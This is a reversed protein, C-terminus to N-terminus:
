IYVRDLEKIIIQNNTREKLREVLKENNSYFKIIVEEQYDFIIQQADYKKLEYEVLKQLSYSIMIEYGQMLSAQQINAQDITQKVVGSYARILGGTGLLTGGFYRTVVALTDILDEYRLIELMPMGATKSPEGDDSQNEVLVNDINLIYAYCVHRSKPHAERIKELIEKAEEKNKIPFLECIFRSKEVVLTHTAYEKLINYEM